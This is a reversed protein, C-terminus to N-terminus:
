TVINNATRVAVITYKAGAVPTISGATPNYFSFTASGVTASPAASVILGNTAAGPSPWVELQDGVTFTAPLGSTPSVLTCATATVGVTTGAGVAGPTLAAFSLEVLPYIEAFQRQQFM